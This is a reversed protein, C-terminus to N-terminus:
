WLLVQFVGFMLLVSHIVFANKYAADSQDSSSDPSKASTGDTPAMASEPASVPEPTPAPTPIPLGFIEEPLLVKDVEYVAVPSQSFISSSIPANVLGTSMNVQAGFASVNFKYPGMTSIPSSLSQFQGLSYFTPVAHYELLSTKQQDTLKNIMAKYERRLSAFATDSPAFLSLGQQTNNAQTQLQNEVQSGKLLSLFTKFQGAQQLVDTINVFHPAPPPAPAPAPSLSLPSVPANALSVIHTGVDRVETCAGVNALMFLICIPLVFEM